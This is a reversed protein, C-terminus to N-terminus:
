SLDRLLATWAATSVRLEGGEVDKSDRMGVPGVALDVEVCVDGNDSYSSKRWAPM